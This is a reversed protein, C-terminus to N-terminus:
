REQDRKLDRVVNINRELLWSLISLVPRLSKRTRKNNKLSSKRGQRISSKSVVITFNLTKTQIVLAWLMPNLFQWLLTPYHELPRSVSSLWLKLVLFQAKITNFSSTLVKPLAAKFSVQRWWLLNWCEETVQTAQGTYLAQSTLIPRIRSTFTRKM